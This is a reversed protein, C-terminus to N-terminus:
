EFPVRFLRTALDDEPFLTRQAAEAAHRAAFRCSPRCFRQWRRAPTFAAGCQPCWHTRVCEAPRDDRKSVRAMTVRPQGGPAAGPPWRGPVARRTKQRKGRRSNARSRRGELDYRIAM